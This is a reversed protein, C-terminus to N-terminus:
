PTGGTDSDKYRNQWEALRALLDYEGYSAFEPDPTALYPTEKQDFYNVLASIGARAEEITAAIDVKPFGIKLPESAAGMKWYELTSVAMVPIDKFGGELAMVGELALQPKRGTQVEARTATRGTKYDIIVAARTEALQDIRDAKATVTFSKQTDRVKFAGTVETALTKHTLERRRQEHIFEGAVQVFRPWWFVKVMPRSLAQQDFIRQGEALLIDLANDPLPIPVNKIFLDFIEHLIIGKDAAGPDAELEDLPKLKLIHKAFVAYPDRM